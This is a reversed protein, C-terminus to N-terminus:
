SGFYPEVCVFPMETIVPGVSASMRDPQFVVTLDTSLGAPSDISLESVGDVTPIFTKGSPIYISISGTVEQMGARIDYPDLSANTYINSLNNNIQYNIGVIEAGVDGTVVVKDWTILKQPSDYPPFTEPAIDEVGKAFVAIDLKVTDSSVIEFKFTNIRCDNFQRTKECYYSFVINGLYNGNKAANIIDLLNEGNNDEVAAPFGFSGTIERTSPRGIRKQTQRTGPTEGKTSDTDIYGTDNLGIVHDYFLFNQNPNVDFSTCRIQQGSVTAIGIYGPYVNAM